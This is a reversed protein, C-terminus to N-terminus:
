RISMVARAIADANAGINQDFLLNDSRNTIFGMEILCSPMKSVSNVLYDVSRGYVSGYIIGRSQMGSSQALNANVARGLQASKTHKNKYEGAPCSSKKMCHLFVAYGAAVTNNTGPADRHLSVYVNAKVSNARRVRAGLDQIGRYSNQVDTRAMVVRAGRMLLAQRLALAMRLNDDREIRGWAQAGSDKGGHGADVFVIFPKKVKYSVTRVRSKKLGRGAYVQTYYQGSNKHKSRRVTYAWANRAVKKARYIRLDDKGRTKSWAYLYVKNAPKGKFRPNVVTIRYASSDNLARTVFVRNRATISSFDVDSPLAAYVSSQPAEWASAGFGFAVLATIVIFCIKKRLAKTM